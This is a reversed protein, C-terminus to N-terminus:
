KINDIPYANLISEKDVLQIFKKSYNGMTGKPADVAEYKWQGAIEANEAAAKLANEAHYKAFAIIQEKFSLNLKLFDESELLKNKNMNEIKLNFSTNLRTLREGDM